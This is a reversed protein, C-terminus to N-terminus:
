NEVRINADRILRSYKAVEANMFAEFDEPKSSSPVMGQATMREAVKPSRMAESIERALLNVVERSMRAPGWIGYWSREEFRALGSEALTPVEPLMNVRERTTVGLPKLKGAKIHEIFVPIPDIMANIRGGILDIVAPAAGKYPVVVIKLGAEQRLRETTLHGVSGLGSAGFAYKDPNAKALAIFERLNAAPVDRHVV